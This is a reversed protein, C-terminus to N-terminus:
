EDAPGGAPAGVVPNSTDISADQTDAPTTTPPSENPSTPRRGRYDPRQGPRSYDVWYEEESRADLHVFGSRPYFGVGANPLTRCYDRLATNPVGQIRFDMARGVVHRSTARTYGRAPRYGSIIYMTRGGFHDSVQALMAVLRRNPERSRNNRHSQMLPRLRRLAARRVRGRNDVLSVRARDGTQQRVFNARGRRTPTGWRPGDRERNQAQPQGPLVLSQGVRLNDNENIGNARALQAVSVRHRRAIRSLTDGSGVIIGGRDPVRLRQGERLHDADSLGNFARLNAVSVRHRQAIASLTDGSRVTYRRNAKSSRPLTLFTISVLFLALISLRVM